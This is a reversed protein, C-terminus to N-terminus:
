GLGLTPTNSAHAEKGSPERGGGRGWLGEGKTQPSSFGPFQPHKPSTRPAPNQQATRRSLGCRGGSSSISCRPSEYTRSASGSRNGGLDRGAPPVQQDRSAHCLVAHVGNTLIVTLPLSGGLGGKTLPPLLLSTAMEILHAAPILTARVRLMLTDVRPAHPNM